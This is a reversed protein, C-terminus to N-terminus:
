VLFEKGIGLLFLVNNNKKECGYLQWLIDMSVFLKSEIDLPSKLAM